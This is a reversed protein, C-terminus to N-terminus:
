RRPNSDFLAHHLVVLLFFVGVVTTMVSGSRLLLASLVCLILRNPTSM